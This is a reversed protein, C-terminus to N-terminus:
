ESLFIWTMNLYQMQQKENKYYASISSSKM